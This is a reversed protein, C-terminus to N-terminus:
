FKDFPRAGLRIYDFPLEFIAGDQFDLLFLVRYAKETKGIGEKWRRKKNQEVPELSKHFPCTM